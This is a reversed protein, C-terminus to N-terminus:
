KQTTPVGDAVSIGEATNIMLRKDAEADIEIPCELEVSIAQGSPLVSAAVWVTQEVEGGISVEDQAPLALLRKRQVLLGQVAALTVPASADDGLVETTTRFLASKRLFQAVSTGPMEDESRITMLRGRAGPEHIMFLIPPDNERELRWGSPLKVLLNRASRATTLKVSMKRHSVLMALGLTAALILALTIQM